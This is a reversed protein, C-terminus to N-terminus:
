VSEIHLGRKRRESRRLDDIQGAVDRVSEIGKITFEPNTKDSSTIHINGVGLLREVPGQTFTVDDIDIVEIRDITRWLLGREHVLRQSTLHYKISLQRYLLLLVLGIWMVAIAAVVAVWAVPGAASALVGVVLLAVTVAVATIWSGIMALKSFTGQWVEQEDDDSDNQRAATATRFRESATAPPDAGDDAVRTGCQQCFVAQDDLETGCERCVMSRTSWENTKQHTQTTTPM